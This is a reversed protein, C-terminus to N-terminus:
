KAISQWRLGTETVMADMPQDTSDHPLASACQGDYAVGIAQVPQLARLQALSRDYFGGGYGLRYFSRDFAVLPCLLVSPELWDGAVPVAAGFPGPETECGPAWARFKLALGAGQIVPVCLKHGAEHLAAMALRPDLESRIPLYGSIVTSSRDAMFTTLFQRIQLPATQSNARHAAARAAFGATRASTKQDALIM